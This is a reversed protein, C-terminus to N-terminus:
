VYTIVEFVRCIKTRRDSRELIGSTVVNCENFLAENSFSIKSFLCFPAAYKELHHLRMVKVGWNRWQIYTGCPKTIYPNKLIKDPHKRRIKERSEDNIKVWNRTSM